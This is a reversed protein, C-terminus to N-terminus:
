KFTHKDFKHRNLFVLFYLYLILYVFILLFILHFVFHHIQVDYFSLTSCVLIRRNVLIYENFDFGVSKNPSKPYFLLLLIDTPSNNVLFSGVVHM